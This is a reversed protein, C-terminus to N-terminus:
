LRDILEKLGLIPIILKSPRYLLEYDLEHLAREITFYNILTFDVKISKDFIKNMMSLEWQNLLALVSELVKDKQSIKAAKRFYLSFLFEEPVRYEEKGILRNEIFNLLADFKIYSLSRLFSGLDKEIPFKQKKEELPLQPDGEFDIFCFEYESDRKNYLIKQMHLDQHIPQIIINESSFASRYNELIDQIDILIAQIKPSTYFAVKERRKMNNQIKAVMTLLRKTYKDLFERSDVLEKSYQSIESFILAKHLKKIELGIEKSVILSERCNQKILSSNKEKNQLYSYDAHIDPIAQNLMNTVEKWYIDGLNGLNEMKELIGIVEKEYFRITGYIKPSNPYNNKVLVYLSKTELGPSYNKYSKLVFSAVRVDARKKIFINIQFLLNTTAGMIQELSFEYRDPYLAAEILTQVNKMNREDEFQETFLTLYLSYLPFNESLKKDFLIKRWFFACYEAELLNLTFIDEEKKDHFYVALKKSFTNETLKIINESVNERSELIDRLTDYYILPLFYKKVYTQTKVEIVLLFIRNSICEYHSISISFALSALSTKNSFWIRSLLWGKFENSNIVQELLNKDIFSTM